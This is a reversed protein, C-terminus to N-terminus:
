QNIMIMIKNYADILVLPPFLMARSEIQQQNFERSELNLCSREKEEIGMKDKQKLEIEACTM